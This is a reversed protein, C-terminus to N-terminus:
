FIISAAAVQGNLLRLRGTRWALTTGALRGGPLVVVAAVCVEASVIIACKPFSGGLRADVRRTEICADNRRRTHRVQRWAM